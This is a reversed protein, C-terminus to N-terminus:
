LAFTDELNSVLTVKLNANLVHHKKAFMIDVYLLSQFSFTKAFIGKVNKNVQIQLNRLQNEIEFNEFKFLISEFLDLSLSKIKKIRNSNSQM